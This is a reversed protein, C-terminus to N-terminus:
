GVVPTHALTRYSGGHYTHPIRHESRINTWPCKPGRGKKPHLVKRKPTKYTFASYTHTQSTGYKNKYINFCL